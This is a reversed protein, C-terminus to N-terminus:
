DIMRELLHRAGALEGLYRMATGAQRDVNISAAFDGKEIAVARIRHAIALASHHDGTWTHYDCLGWLCRLLYENDDLQEALELTRTWALKVQPLPGRTHLLTTGLAMRLKMEDRNHLSRDECDKLAREVCVHCEEVLSLHEWFPIAAVTLAVGLPID